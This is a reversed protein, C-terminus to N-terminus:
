ENITDLDIGLGTKYKPIISKKKLELFRNNIDNLKEENFTM